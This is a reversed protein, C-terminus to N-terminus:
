KLHNIGAIIHFFAILCCRGAAVFTNDGSARVYSIKVAVKVVMVRDQM